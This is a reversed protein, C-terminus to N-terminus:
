SDGQGKDGEGAGLERPNSREFKRRVRQWICLQVRGVFSFNLHRLVICGDACERDRLPCQRGPQFQDFHLPFVLCFDAPCGCFAAGKGERDTDPTVSGVDASLGAFLFIANNHRLWLLRRRFNSHYQRLFLGAFCRGQLDKVKQSM